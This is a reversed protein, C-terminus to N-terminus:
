RGYRSIFLCLIFYLGFLFVVVTYIIQQQGDASLRDADPFILHRLGGFFLFITLVFLLIGGLANVTLLNRRGAALQRFEGFIGRITGGVSTDTIWILWWLLFAGVIPPIYPELIALVKLAVDPWTALQAGL